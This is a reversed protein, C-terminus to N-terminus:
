SGTSVALTRAVVVIGAIVACNIILGILQVIDSRLHRRNTELWTWPPKSTARKKQCIGWEDDLSCHLGFPRVAIKGTWYCLIHFFPELFAQVIVALM